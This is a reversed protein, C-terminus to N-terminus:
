PPFGLDRPNLLNRTTDAELNPDNANTNFYYTIRIRGKRNIDINGYIKGYHMSVLQNKSDVKTRCRFVLYDNLSLFNNEFVKDPKRDYVFRYEQVFVANTNAAYVSPFSSYTDKTMAYAGSLANTFSMTLMSKVDLYEAGQRLEYKLQIDSYSGGGYPPVWDCKELDFGVSVDHVPITINLFGPSSAVYMAVPNIKRKLVVINTAGYPQWRGDKVGNREFNLRGSTEYYGDKSIWYNIEGVSKREAVLFGYKGTYDHVANGKQGNLYFGAKVFANSVPNACDDIVHFVVKTKAGYNIAYTFAADYALCTGAIAMFVIGLRLKM